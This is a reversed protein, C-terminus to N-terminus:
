DNDAPNQNVCEMLVKSLISKNKWSICKNTDAFNGAM